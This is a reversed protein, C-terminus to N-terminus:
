REVLQKLAEDYKTMGRNLAQLFDASIDLDNVHTEVKEIEVKGEVNIIFRIEDGAKVGLL